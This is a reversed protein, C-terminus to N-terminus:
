AGQQLLALWCDHKGMLWKGYSWFFYMIINSFGVNNICSTHTHASNKPTLILELPLSNEISCHFKPISCPLSFKVAQATVAKLVGTL